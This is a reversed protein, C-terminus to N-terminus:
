IAQQHPKAHGDGTILRVLRATALAAFTNARRIPWAAVAALDQAERRSWECHEQALLKAEAHLAAALDQARTDPCLAAVMRDAVEGVAAVVHPEHDVYFQATWAAFDPRKRAREIRDTELALMRGIVTALVPGFVALARADDPAVAGDDRHDTAGGGGGQRGGGAGTGSGARGEERDPTPAPPAKIREIDARAREIALDAPAMNLPVYHADGAESELPNRDELERIENVSLVGIGWLERYYQARAQQDGRLLANVNHRVYLNSEGPLFLKRKGEQEWRCLWPMLTDVVYEIGQHEINSFTARMLQQLKHPPMRFWRCIDNVDFEQSQNLQQKEPDTSIQEWKGGEELVLPTHVNEGSYRKRLSATLNGIAKDSLPNPFSIAGTPSVGNKYFRGRWRQTALATGLSERALKTMAYGTIGDFGLGHLHLVDASPILVPDGADPAFRYWLEGDKPNRMLTVHTPPLPWLEHPRGDGKRVIEAYGGSYGLAHATLTERFTMASMEPNPSDHLLRWVPHTRAQERRRGNETERLTMLPLKAVDEAINRIAAFYASMTMATTENVIEGSASEPGVLADRLWRELPSDAYTAARPAVATASERRFLSEFIM